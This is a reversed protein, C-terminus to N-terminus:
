TRSQARIPKAVPEDLPAARRPARDGNLWRRMPDEM